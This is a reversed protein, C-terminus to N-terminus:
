AYQAIKQALEMLRLVDQLVMPFPAMLAQYLPSNEEFGTLQSKNSFGTSNGYSVSVFVGPDSVLRSFKKQLAAGDSSSPDLLTELVTVPLKSKKAWSLLTTRREVTDAVLLLPTKEGGENERLIPSMNDLTKELEKLDKEWAFHVHVASNPPNALAVGTWWASWIAMLSQPAVNKPLQRAVTQALRDGYPGNLGRSLVQELLNRSGRPDLQNLLPGVPELVASLEKGRSLSLRDVM